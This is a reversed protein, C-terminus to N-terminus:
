ASSREVSERMLRLGTEIGAESWPIAYSGSQPVDSDDKSAISLEEIFRQRQQRRENRYPVVIRINTLVHLGMLLRERNDADFVLERRGYQGEPAAFLRELAYVSEPFARRLLALSDAHGPIPVSTFVEREDSPAFLRTAEESYVDITIPMAELRARSYDLRPPEDTTPKM